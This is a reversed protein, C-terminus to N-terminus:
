AEGGGTIEVTCTTREEVPEVGPLLHGNAYEAKVLAKAAVGDLRPVRVYIDTRENEVAWDLLDAPDTLSPHAAYTRYQVRGLGPVDVSKKGRPVLPEAIVAATDTAAALRARLEVYREDHATNAARRSAEVNAIEAEIEAIEHMVRRLERFATDRDLEDTM